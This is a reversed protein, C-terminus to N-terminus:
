QANDADAEVRNDMTTSSTAKIKRRKREIQVWALPADTFPQRHRVRVADIPCGFTGDGGTFVDRSLPREVLLM